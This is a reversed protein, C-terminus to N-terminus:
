LDAKAKVEQKLHACLDALPSLETHERSKASCADQGLGARPETPEGACSPAESRQNGGSVRDGAKGEVSEVSNHGEVTM